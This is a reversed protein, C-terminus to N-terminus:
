TSVLVFYRRKWSRKGSIAKKYLHGTMQKEVVLDSLAGQEELEAFSKGDAGGFECMSETFFSRRDGAGGMSSSPGYLGDLARSEKRLAEM